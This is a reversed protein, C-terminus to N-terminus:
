CKYLNTSTKWKGNNIKIYIIAECFECFELDEALEIIEHHIKNTHINCDICHM